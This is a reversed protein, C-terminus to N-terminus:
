SIGPSSLSATSILHAMSLLYQIYIDGPLVEKFQDIKFNIKLAYFMKQFCQREQM